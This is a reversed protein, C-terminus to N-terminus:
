KSSTLEGCAKCRRGGKVEFTEPNNCIECLIHSDIIDEIADDITQADIDKKIAISTKRDEVLCGIRKKLHTVVWKRDREIDHCLIDFTKSDILVTGGGKNIRTVNSIVSRKYRFFPDNIGKPITVRKTSSM